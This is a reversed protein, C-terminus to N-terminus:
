AAPLATAVSRALDRLHEPVLVAAQRVGTPVDDPDPLVFIKDM